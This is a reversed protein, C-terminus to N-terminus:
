SELRARDLETLRVYPLPFPLFRHPLPCLPVPMRPNRRLDRDSELRLLLRRLDREEDLELLLRLRRDREDRRRVVLVLLLLLLSLELLLRDFDFSRDFESGASPVLSLGMEKLVM